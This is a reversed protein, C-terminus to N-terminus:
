RPIAERLQRAADARTDAHVTTGTPLHTATVVTGAINTFVEVQCSGLLKKDRHTQILEDLCAPCHRTDYSGHLECTQESGSTMATRSQDDLVRRALAPDARLAEVTEVVANLRDGAYVFGNVKTVLEHLAAEDHNIIPEAPQNM